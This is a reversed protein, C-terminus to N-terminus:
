EELRVQGPGPFNMRRKRDSSYTLKATVREVDHHELAVRYAHINEELRRIVKTLADANM